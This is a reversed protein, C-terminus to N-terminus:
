LELKFTHKLDAIQAADLPRTPVDRLLLFLKATEELEEAAYVAAELSTGSVVPGHNALLVASHKRAMAGIAGALAPDGPRHYPVLPLRGVKMVFYPTLPPICDDHNLGCMCSVAASHTSHLHVIAGASGREAYMARHLFAEKSPPAGSILNGDWDLKSLQAPDLRGLSANTPTLLWGDSLRVSLNGSSGATLGREFLSKGFDVILERQRSETSSM